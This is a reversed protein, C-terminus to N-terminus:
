IKQWVNWEMDLVYIENWNGQRHEKTLIAYHVGEPNYPDPHEYELWYSTKTRKFADHAVTIDVYTLSKWTSLSEQVRNILVVSLRERVDRM